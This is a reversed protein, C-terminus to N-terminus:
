LGPILHNMAERNKRMKLNYSPWQTFRDKKYSGTIKKMLEQTKEWDLRGSEKLELLEPINADSLQLLYETDLTKGAAIHDINYRSILRDWNILSAMVLLVLWATVNKDLLKWASEYSSIKRATFWLGLLCLVLFVLVGIRLYTLQYQQIYWYNRIMSNVVVLGSQIIWAYVLLKLKRGQHSFNLGGRFFWAILSVAILISFVTNWVAQHVFDSLTIGSPLDGTIYIQHVDLTNMCLLMVNLLGFLIAGTILFVPDEATEEGDNGIEEALRIDTDTIFDIRRSYVLGYIIFFGLVAFCVWGFSLWRLNIFETFSSFLPNSQRYLNFFVLVGTLSLLLSLLIKGQRGGQGAEPQSKRDQLELIFYIVSSGLSYISFLFNAVSSTRRDFSKGCFVLLSFFCATLSLKSNVVFVALGALNTLICYCWWRWDYRKVPNILLLVGSIMLTFLLYNLGPAQRYFLGSFAIASAILIVDNKKM